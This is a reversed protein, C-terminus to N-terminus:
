SKCALLQVKPFVYKVSQFVLTQLVGMRVADGAYIYLVVKKDTEGSIPLYFECIQQYICFLNM